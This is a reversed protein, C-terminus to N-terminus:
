RAARPMAGFTPRSRPIVVTTGDVLSLYYLHPASAKAARLAAHSEPAEVPMLINFYEWIFVGFFNASEYYGMRSLRRNRKWGQAFMYLWYDCRASRAPSPDSCYATIDEVSKPKDM